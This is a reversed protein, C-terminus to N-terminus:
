FPVPETNPIGKARCAEEVAYRADADAEALTLADGKVCECLGTLVRWQYPTPFGKVERDSGALRYEITVVFGREAMACGYCVKPSDIGTEEGCVECQGVTIEKIKSM